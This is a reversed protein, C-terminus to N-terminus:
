SVREGRPFLVRTLLLHYVGPLTEGENPFSESELISWPATDLADQLEAVYWRAQEEDEALVVYPRFYSNDGCVAEVLLRYGTCRAPVGRVQRLTLLASDVAHDSPPGQMTLADLVLRRAQDFRGQRRALEARLATAMREGDPMSKLEDIRDAAADWRGGDMHLSILLLLYRISRRDLARARIALREAGSLDGTRATLIAWHYFIAPDDPSLLCARQFASDAAELDGKQAESSGIQVWLESDLVEREPQELAKRFCRLAEDYEGLDHYCLGLRQHIIREQPALGAAAKLPKCAERLEGARHLATGWNYRSRWNKRDVRIARKYCEIARELEGEADHCNGLGDWAPAFRPAELTLLEFERRAADIDGRELTAAATLYHACIQDESDTMDSEEPIM